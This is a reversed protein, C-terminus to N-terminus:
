TVGQRAIAVAADLDPPNKVTPQGTAAQWVARRSPRPPAQMRDRERRVAASLSSATSNDGMRAALWAADELSELVGLADGRDARIRLAERTRAAQLEAPGDPGMAAVSAALAAAYDDDDVSDRAQRLTEELLQLAEPARDSCVLVRALVVRAQVISGGVRWGDAEAIALAERAHLEAEALEGTEVAIDALVRLAQGMAPRDGNSASLDLCKRAHREAVEFEGRVLRIAALLALTASTVRYDAENQAYELVGHARDLAADLEGTEYDIVALNRRVQYREVANGCTEMLALSSTYLRRAGTREGRRQAIMALNNLTRARLAGDAEEPRLALSAQLAEEAAQLAGQATAITGLAHLADARLSVAV